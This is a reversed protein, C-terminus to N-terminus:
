VQPTEENRSTAIAAEIEGICGPCLPGRSSILVAQDPPTPMGCLACRVVLSNSGTVLPSPTAVASNSGASFRTDDAIIEQCVEVCADCICVNPGAILRRVDNQNKRCFSCSLQNVPDNTSM